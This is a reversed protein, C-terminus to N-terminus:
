SCHSTQTTALDSAEAIANYFHYKPFKFTAIKRLLIHVAHLLFQFHPFFFIFLVLNSQFSLLPKCEVISIYSTLGRSEPAV